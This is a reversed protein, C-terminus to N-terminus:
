RESPGFLDDAKDADIQPGTVSPPVFGWAELLDISRESVSRRRFDNLHADTSSQQNQIGGDQCPRPSTRVGLYQALGMLTRALRSLGEM